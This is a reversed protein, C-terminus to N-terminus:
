LGAEPRFGCATPTCLRGVRGQKDPLSFNHFLAYENGIDVVGQQIPLIKPILGEGRHDSLDYLDRTDIGLHEILLAADNVLLVARAFIRAEELLQRAELFHVTVLGEGDHCRRDVREAFHAPAHQLEIRGDCVSFVSFAAPTTM